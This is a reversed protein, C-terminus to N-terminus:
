AAATTNFSQCDMEVPEGSVTILVTDQCCGLYSANSRRALCLWVCPLLVVRVSIECMDVCLLRYYM